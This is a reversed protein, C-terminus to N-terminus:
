LIEYVLDHCPSVSSASPDLIRVFFSSVSPRPSAPSAIPPDPASLSSDIRIRIRIRIRHQTHPPCLHHNDTPRNSNAQQNQSTTRKKCVLGNVRAGRLLASPSLSYPRRGGGRSRAAGRGSRPPTRACTGASTASTTLRPRPARTRGPTRGPMPIRRPRCPCRAISALIAPTASSPASSWALRSARPITLCSARPSACPALRSARARRCGRTPALIGPISLARTSPERTSLAPTWQARTARTLRERIWQGRTWRGRTSRERTWRGRIGRTSPAPTSPGRTRGRTSPALTSVPTSPARTARIASAPTSSSPEAAVRARWRARTATCTRSARTATRGSRAGGSSSPHPARAARCRGRALTTQRRPRPGMRGTCRTRSMGRRARRTPIARTSAGARPSRSASCAMRSRRGAHAGPVAPCRAASRRRRATSASAGPNGADRACVAAAPSAARMVGCRESAAATARRPLARFRPALERRSRFRTRRRTSRRLATTRPRPIPTGRTCLLAPLATTSRRLSTTLPHRARSTATDDTLARTTGRRLPHSPRQSRAITGPRLHLTTGGRACRERTRTLTTTRRPSLTSTTLPSHLQTRAQQPM